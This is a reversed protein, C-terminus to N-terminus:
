DGETNVLNKQKWIMNRLNKVSKYNTAVSSITPTSSNESITIVLQGPIQGSIPEVIAEINDSEVYVDEDSSTSALQYTPDNSSDDTDLGDDSEDGIISLLKRIAEENLGKRAM